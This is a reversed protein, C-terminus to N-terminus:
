NFFNCNQVFQTPTVQYHSNDIYTITIKNNRADQTKFACGIQKEFQPNFSQPSVQLNYPFVGLLLMTEDSTHPNLFIGAGEGTAVINEDSNNQVTVCAFRPDHDVLTHNCMGLVTNTFIASIIILVKKM